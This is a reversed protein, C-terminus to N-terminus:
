NLKNRNKYHRLWEEYNMPDEKDISCRFLHESWEKIASDLHLNTFAILDKPQVDEFFDNTESISEMRQCGNIVLFHEATPIENM